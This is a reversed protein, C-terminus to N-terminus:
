QLHTYNLLIINESLNHVLNRSACDFLFIDQIMPVDIGMQFLQCRNDQHKHSRKVDVLIVITDNFFLLWHTLVVSM